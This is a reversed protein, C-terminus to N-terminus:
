KGEQRQTLEYNGLRLKVPIGTQKQWSWEQKCFFGFHQDYYTHPAMMYVPYAPLPSPGSPSPNNFSTLPPGAKGGGKTFAGFFLYRSSTVTDALLHHRTFSGQPPIKESLMQAQLAVPVIILCGILWWKMKM